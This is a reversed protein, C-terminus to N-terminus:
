WTSEISGQPSCPFNVSLAIVFSELFTGPNLSLGMQRLDHGLCWHRGGRRFNGEALPM